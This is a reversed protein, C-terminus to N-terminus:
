RGYVACFLTVAILPGVLLGLSTASWIMNIMTRAFQKGRASSNLIIVRKRSFPDLRFALFAYSMISVFLLAFAFHKAAAFRDRSGAYGSHGHM